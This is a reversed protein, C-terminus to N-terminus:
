FTRLALGARSLGQQLRFRMAVAYETMVRFRTVVTVPASAEKSTTVCRAMAVGAPLYVLLIRLGGGGGREVSGIGCEVVLQRGSWAQIALPSGAVRVPTLRGVHCFAIAVKQSITVGLRTPFVPRSLSAVCVSTAVRIVTADPVESMVSVRRGAQCVPSLALVLMGVVLFLCLWIPVSVVASTSSLVDVESPGLGFCPVVVLCVRERLSLSFKSVPWSWLRAYWRYHYRSLAFCGGWRRYHYSWSAYALVFHGLPPFSLALVPLWGLYLAICGPEM